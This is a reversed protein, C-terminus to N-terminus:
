LEFVNYPHIFLKAHIDVSFIQIWEIIDYYNTYHKSYKSFRAITFKLVSHQMKLM